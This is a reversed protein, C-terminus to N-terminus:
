KLSTGLRAPKALELTNRRGAEVKHAPLPRSRDRRPPQLAHRGALQHAARESVGPTHQPQPQLMGVSLAM